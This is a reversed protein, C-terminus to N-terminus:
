YQSKITEIGKSLVIRWAAETEADHKSDTKKVAEMLADVWYPYMNPNVNLRDRKHSEGLQNVKNEAIKSGKAYSILFTIGNRLAEKQATMKTNKFMEGIKPSKSLFIEYFTEFFEPKSCCHGYSLAVKELYETDIKKDTEALTM